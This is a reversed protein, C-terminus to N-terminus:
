FWKQGESSPLRAQFFGSKGLLKKNQGTEVKLFREKEVVKQLEKSNALHSAVRNTFQQTFGILDKCKSLQIKNTQKKIAALM